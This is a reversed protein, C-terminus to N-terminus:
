ESGHFFQSTRPRPAHGFGAMRRGRDLKARSALRARWRSPGCGFIAKAAREHWFARISSHRARIGSHQYELMGANAECGWSARISAGWISSHQFAPISPGLARISSHQANPCEPMRAYHGFAPGGPMIGSNWANPCEPMRAWCEPMIGSHGFAQIGPRRANPCEPGANPCEPM